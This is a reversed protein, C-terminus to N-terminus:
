TTTMAAWGGWEMRMVDRSEEEEEDDGVQEPFVVPLSGRTPRSAKAEPHGWPTALRGGHGCLTTRASVVESAPEPERAEARVGRARPPASLLALFISPLFCHTELPTRLVSFSLPFVFSLFYMRHCDWGREEGEEDQPPGPGGEEGDEDGGGRGGPALSVM